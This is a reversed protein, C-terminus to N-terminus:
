RTLNAKSKEMRIMAKIAEEQNKLSSMQAIDADMMDNLIDISKKLKLFNQNLKRTEDRCHIKKCVEILNQYQSSVTKYETRLRNYKMKNNKIKLTKKRVTKQRKELEEIKNDKVTRPIFSPTGLGKTGGAILYITTIIFIVSIQKM